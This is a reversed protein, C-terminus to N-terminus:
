SGFGLGWIGLFILLEEKPNSIQSKLNPPKRAHGGGVEDQGESTGAARGVPHAQELHQQLGSPGDVEADARGGDLYDLAFEVPVDAQIAELQRVQHPALV